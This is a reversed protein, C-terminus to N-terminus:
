RGTPDPVYLTIPTGRPVAGQPTQGIVTGGPADAPIPEIRAPYGAQALAQQAREVPQGVVVPVIPGHDQARLYGPDPGPLPQDPQGALIQNFADFFTPAAITGGFAGACSERIVPPNTACITGPDDGDAYVASVAAYGDTIGLFAVSENEQTTGTKAATPRTWGANRAAAASTGPPRIDDGLGAVLSDALAPAVVQECPLQPVTVPHGDRDVVSDIPTPPCWRGHDSLTAAVNALELPSFPNFGLTFAVNNLNYVSQPESYATPNSAGQPAPGPPRGYMNAQMTQRLGLRSAMGLVSGMGAQVELNTFAVNPSTALAERLTIPNPYNPSYNHIPSCRTYQNRNPPFFCQEYPNSMPTQLGVRGQEMGAAATFIKFVSGAGFPVSVDAPQNYSTQGAAADTGFDRNSVLALVRHGDPGPKVIVFPNAVGPQTTPVRRNAAQKAIASIRPDMTTRITYGGTYIQDRTMGARELYNVVYDCFFGAEPAIAYCNNPPLAPRPEVVGLPQAKAEDAQRATITGTDVMADIVMNRRALAHDPFQYPNFFNPNDVMGALLAAQAITLRDPTTNFYYQAAARVGFMQNGFSVVNLYGTLIQEKSQRQGVTAALKAERLKRALTADQDEQQARRDNRDVVNILYNKVYQQTITSGGQQSGGRANNLAARVIGRPDLASESFFGRDEISVIAAKMTVAIDQWSAPLRYQDYLAAVPRGEADTLTTVLPPPVAALQGSVGSVSSSIQNSLEGLGGAVPFTVGAVLVGALACWVVLLGVPRSLGAEGRM